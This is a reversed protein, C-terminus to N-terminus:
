GSDDAFAPLKMGESHRFETLVKRAVGHDIALIQRVRALREFKNEQQAKEFKTPTAKDSFFGLVTASLYTYAALEGALAVIKRKGPLMAESEVRGRAKDLFENAKEAFATMEDAGATAPDLEHLLQLLDNREPELDVREASIALAHFKGRLDEQILNKAVTAIDMAQGSKRVIEVVDRCVRILDRPLGGSLCYCLGSFPVPWGIVRRAVLSRSFEYSLFNVHIIDDFSSDFADRFPLGRREFASMANESVSVLYYVQRVGFVAKIDNVFVVARSEDALKDLEDIGIFIKWDKAALLKLFRVFGDTIEPMSLQKQSLSMASNLGGELGAPLKLAGSWGSTFSQQFKIERLWTAAADAAERGLGPVEQADGGKISPDTATPPRGSPAPEGREPDKGSLMMFMARIPLPAARDSVPPSPELLIALYALLFSFLLLSAGTSFISGAKLGLEDIMLPTYEAGASASGPPLSPAEAKQSAVAGETGKKPAEAKGTAGAKAVTAPAPADKTTASSPREAIKRDINIDAIFVGFLLLLIGFIGSVQALQPALRRVASAPGSRRYEALVSELTPAEASRNSVELVRRCVSAFLHLIFDRSEYQVPASTLVTLAKADHFQRVRPDCYTSMLTSKGVGRPGAIGISGGPMIRLMADLKEQSPTVVEYDPNFIESLGPTEGAGLTTDFVPAIEADVQARAESSIVSFLRQELAGALKELTAKMEALKQQTAPDDVVVSLKRLYGRYGSYLLYFTLAAPLLVYILVFFPVIPPNTAFWGKASILSWDGTVLGYLVYAVTALPFVVPWFVAAGNIFTVYFPPVPQRSELRKEEELRQSEISDYESIDRSIVEWIVPERRLLRTRVWESKVAATQLAGTIEKSQLVSDVVSEFREKSKVYAM